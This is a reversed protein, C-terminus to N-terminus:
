KKSYRKLLFRVEDSKAYDLAILGSNDKIDVNAGRELFEKVSKLSDIKVLKHLATQGKESDKVNIDLGNNLLISLIKIDFDEKQTKLKQNTSFYVKKINERKKKIFIISYIIISCISIFLIAVTIKFTGLTIIYIVIRFVYVIAYPVFVMCLCLIVVGISEGVELFRILWIAFVLSVIMLVIVLLIFM